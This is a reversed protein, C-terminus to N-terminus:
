LVRTRRGTASGLLERLQELPLLYEQMELGDVTAESRLTRGDLAGARAIAEILAREREPTWDATLEWPGRLATVALALAYGGWNSVGAILAFDTATRSVIRPASPSGIAAVLTEWPFKGMGIENGGDGIGITTPRSDGSLEFARHIAPTHRDIDQGRMNHCVDRHDPPVQSEFNALPPSEVRHQAALSELTHSPGPREIAILHTLPWVGMDTLLEVGKNGNWTAPFEVLMTAPLRWHDCGAQLLPITLHDSIIKTDVGLSHLARALYLAGPPGDTEGAFREPTVACFGTVIAVQRAHLALDMAAARWQGTDLAQGGLVFSALGRRGPDHHVIAELAQWDIAREAAWIRTTEPSQESPTPEAPM